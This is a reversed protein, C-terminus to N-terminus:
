ELMGEEALMKLTNEFAEATKALDEQTHIGSVLGGPWPMIDVGGCLFGLRIKHQLDISTSSRLKWYDIRGEMIDEPGISEHDPNAFVHFASFDGYVSWDCGLQRIISNM